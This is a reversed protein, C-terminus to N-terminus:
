TKYDIEHSTLGMLSNGLQYNCTELWSYILVEVFEEEPETM